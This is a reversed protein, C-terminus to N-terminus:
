GGDFLEVRVWFFRRDVGKHYDAAARSLWERWRAHDAVVVRNYTLVWIRPCDATSPPPQQPRVIRAPTYTAYISWELPRGGFPAFAYCDDPRAEAGVFRIADRYNEKYPVYYNASLAYGGYVLISIVTLPQLLGPMRTLGAGVLIYYPAICFAVYRVNFQVGFLVGLMLVAALPVAFLLFPFASAREISGPTSRRKWTEILVLALPSGFLIGGALFTWVPASEVVSSVAGNNFRNITGAVSAPGVLFYEAMLRPSAADVQGPLAFAVWPALVAGGAAAASVIWSRPINRWYLATFIALAAVAFVGYYHTAIMLVASVASLVWASVSGRLFAKWYFYSTTLFFLLFVEYNRAEQSYMIGLQSVALLLAAYLGASSDYLAEALWFILPLALVGALASLLRAEFGGFGVLNFWGHLLWFYVPPNYELPIRSASGKFYELMGDLPARAVTLSIAEDHWISQHDLHYLRLCVGLLVIASLKLYIPLRGSMLAAGEGRM